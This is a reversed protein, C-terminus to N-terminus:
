QATWNTKIYFDQEWNGGFSPVNVGIYELTKILLPNLKRKITEGRAASDVIHTIEFGITTKLINKWSQPLRTGSYWSSTNNIKATIDYSGDQKKTWNIFADYTGIFWEVWSYYNSKSSDGLDFKFSLKLPNPRKDDSYNFFKNKICYKNNRDSFSVSNAIDISFLSNDNFIAKSNNAWYANDIPSMTEFFWINYMDNWDAQLSAGSPLAPFQINKIAEFVKKLWEYPNGQPIRGLINKFSTLEEDSIWTGNMPNKERIPMNERKGIVFETHQKLLERDEEIWNPYHEGGKAWPNNTNAM